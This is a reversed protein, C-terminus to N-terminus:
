WLQNSIFSGALAAFAFLFSWGSISRALRLVAENRSFQLVGMSIGFLLLGVLAAVLSLRIASNVIMPVAQGAITPAGVYNSEM